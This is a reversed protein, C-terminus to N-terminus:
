AVKRKPARLNLRAQRKQERCKSMRYRLVLRLTIVHTGEGLCPFLSQYGGTSKVTHVTNKAGCSIMCHFQKAVPCM